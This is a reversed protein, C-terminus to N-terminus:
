APATGADLDADAVPDTAAGRDGRIRSPTAEVPEGVVPQCSVERRGRRREDRRRQGRASADAFGDLLGGDAGGGGCSYWAATSHVLSFRALRCSTRQRERRVRHAAKCSRLDLAYSLRRSM